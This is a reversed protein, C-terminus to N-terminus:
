IKSLKNYYRIAESNRMSLELLIAYNYLAEPLLPNLEIAKEAYELAKETYKL